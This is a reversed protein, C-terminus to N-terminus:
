KEFFELKLGCFFISVSKKLWVMMQYTAEKMASNMIWTNFCLLKNKWEDKVKLLLGLSKSFFSNSADSNDNAITLNLEQVSAM